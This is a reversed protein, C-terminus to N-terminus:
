DTLGTCHSTRAARGQAAGEGVVGTETDAAAEGVHQGLTSSLLMTAFRRWWAASRGYGAQESVIMVDAQPRLASQTCADGNEAVSGPSSM